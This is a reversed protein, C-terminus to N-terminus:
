ELKDFNRKHTDVQEGMEAIFRRQKNLKITLGEKVQDYQLKKLTDKL